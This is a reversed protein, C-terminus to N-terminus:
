LFTALVLGEIPWHVIAAFGSLVGQSTFLVNVHVELTQIFTDVFLAVRGEESAGGIEGNEGGKEATERLFSAVKYPVQLLTCTNSPVAQPDSAHPENAHEKPIQM